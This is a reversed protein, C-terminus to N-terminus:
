NGCDSQLHMICSEHQVSAKGVRCLICNDLLLLKRSDRGALNAPEDRALSTSGSNLISSRGLEVNPTCDRARM